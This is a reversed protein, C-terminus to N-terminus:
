ILYIRKDLNVIILDWNFEKLNQCSNLNCIFLGNWLYNINLRSQPIGAIDYNKM